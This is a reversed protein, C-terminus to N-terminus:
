SDISIVKKFLTKNSQLHKNSRCLQIEFELAHVIRNSKKKRQTKKSLTFKLIQVTIVFYGCYGVHSFDKTKMYTM